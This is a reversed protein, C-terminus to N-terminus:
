RGPNNWSSRSGTSPSDGPDSFALLLVDVGTGQRRPETALEEFITGPILHGAFEQGGLTGVFFVARDVVREGVHGVPRHIEGRDGGADKEALLDLAGLAVVVGRVVPLLGVEPHM